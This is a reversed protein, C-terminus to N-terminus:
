WSLGEKGGRRAVRWVATRTDSMPHSGAMGSGSPLLSVRRWTVRVEVLGPGLEHWSFGKVGPLRFTRGVTTGAADRAERRLTAGSLAWRVTGGAPGTIALDKGAGPEGAVAGSELDARLMAGLQEPAATRAATGSSEIIATSEDILPGVTMFVLGVIACVGLMEVLSFGRERARSM